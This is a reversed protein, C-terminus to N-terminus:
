ISEIASIYEKTIEDIDKVKINDYYYKLNEAVKDIANLIDDKNVFMEGGSKVLEKNGGSDLAVAPLGSALGELLANSCADDEVPSLFIDSERLKAALEDSPLAKIHKINKFEFPSNGIFTMEYKSFDLNEDLFKLYSFGKKMNASWSSYVLKIKAGSNQNFEKKYFVNPDVANLIVAYKKSKWLGLEKAKIYSWNSQFIILDVFLNAFVVTVKDIFKWRFGKRYTSFVPGLRFVIKKKPHLIRNKLIIILDNYSNFLIVDSEKINESYNGNEFFKKQLAKLFQNAGGWPGGKLNYAINIKM